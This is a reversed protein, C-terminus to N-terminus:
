GQIRARWYREGIGPRGEILGLSELKGLIRVVGGRTLHPHFSLVYATAVWRNAGGPALLARDFFDRLKRQNSTLARESM